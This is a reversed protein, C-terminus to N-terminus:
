FQDSGADTESDRVPLPRGRHMPQQSPTEAPGQGPPPKPSPLPQWENPALDIIDPDAARRSGAFLRRWGALLWHRSLPFLILLGLVSTIFGPIVLLIGGLGSAMGNGGWSVAAIGAPRASARSRALSGGLHRLLLVGAISMLIMLLLATSLGVFAAVVIFAAIEAAPWALLGLAIVKLPRM